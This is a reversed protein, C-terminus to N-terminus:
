RRALAVGFVICAGLAVFFAARHAPFKEGKLLSTLASDVREEAAIRAVIAVEPVAENISATCDSKSLDVHVGVLAELLLPMVDACIQRNDMLRQWGSTQQVEAFRSRILRLSARRLPESNVMTALALWDVVTEVTLSRLVSCECLSVLRLVEYKRALKLLDCILQPEAMASQPLEDTYMFELMAALAASHADPLEVVGHRAEVMGAHFMNRFVPSRAALVARHASFEVAEASVLTVDCLVGAGACWLGRIDHSLCAGAIDREHADALNDGAGSPLLEAEILVEGLVLFGQVPDVLDAWPMFDAWGARAKCRQVGEPGPFSSGVPARRQVTRAPALRNIVALSFDVDASASDIFHERKTLKLSIYGEASQEVGGPFFEIVWPKDLLRVSRSVLPVDRVRRVDAINEIYWRIVHKPTRSLWVSRMEHIKPPPEMQLDVPPAPPPPPLSSSSSRAAQM